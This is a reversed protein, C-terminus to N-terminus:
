AIEETGEPPGPTIEELREISPDVTTVVASGLVGTEKVTNGHNDVWDYREDLSTPPLEFRTTSGHGRKFLGM